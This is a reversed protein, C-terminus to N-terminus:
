SGGSTTTPPPPPAPPAAVSTNTSSSSSSPAYVYRIPAEAPQDRVVVVRTIKRVVLVPRRQRGADAARDSPPKPSAGLAAFPALFALGGAL